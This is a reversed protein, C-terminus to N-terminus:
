GNYQGFYTFYFKSLIPLCNDAWDQEQFSIKQIFVEDGSDVLLDCYQLGTLALQGQIQYYHSHNEKLSVVGNICKLFDAYGANICDRINLHETIGGKALTKIELLHYTESTSDFIVRDPSAALFPVGPNVCLGCPFAKYNPNITLYKTVAADENNKGLKMFNSQVYSRKKPWIKQCFTTTIEKKRRVISSFNTSTIRKKRELFWLECESQPRTNRELDRADQIALSCENLMETTHLIDNSEIIDSLHKDWMTKLPLELPSYYITHDEHQKTSRIKNFKRNSRSNSSEARSRTTNLTVSTSPYDDVLITPINFRRNSGSNSSEPKSQIRNLSLSTYPCDNVPIPQYDDSKLIEAFMTLGVNCFTESNKKLIDTTIKVDLHKQTKKQRKEINVLTNKVPKFPDHKLFNLHSFPSNTNVPVAKSGCGWTKPKATCPIGQNIIMNKDQLIYDLLTWLLGFTHKCHGTAGGVCTCHGRIVDGVRNLTVHATYMKKKMSAAIRGRVIVTESSEKTYHLELNKVKADKYIIYGLRNPKKAGDCGQSKYKCMSEESFDQPFKKLDLVWPGQPWSNLFFFM